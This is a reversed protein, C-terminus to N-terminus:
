IYLVEKSKTGNGNKASRKEGDIVTKPRIHGNENNKKVM